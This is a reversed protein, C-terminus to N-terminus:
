CKLTRRAGKGRHTGIMGVVPEIAGLVFLVFCFIYSWVADGGQFLGRFSIAVPVSPVPVRLRESLPSCLKPLNQCDLCVKVNGPGRLPPCRLPPCFKSLPALLLRIPPLFVFSRRAFSTFGHNVLSSCWVRHVSLTRSLAFFYLDFSLDSWVLCSWLVSCGHMCM